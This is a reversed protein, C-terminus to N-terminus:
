LIGDGTYPSKLLEPLGGYNATNDFTDCYALSKKCGPLLEVNATGVSAIEEHLGGIIGVLTVSAGVHLGITQESGGYKLRGRNFYGNAHFSAAPINLTLGVMSDAVGAVLYGAELLGCGRGFIEYPCPAQIARSIGKNNLTSSLDNCVVTVNKLTPKVQQPSGIFVKVFESDPDGAFGQWVTIEMNVVGLETLVADTAVDNKPLTVTVSTKSTSQARKLQGLKVARPSWDQTSLFTVDPSGIPTTVTTSSSTYYFTQAGIVLRYIWIPKAGTKLSNFFSWAM